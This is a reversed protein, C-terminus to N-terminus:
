SLSSAAIKEKEESDVDMCGKGYRATSYKEREVALYSFPFPIHIPFFLNWVFIESVSM